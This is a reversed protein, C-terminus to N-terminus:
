FRNKALEYERLRHAHNNKAKCEEIYQNEADMNKIIEIIDDEYYRMVCERTMEHAMFAENDFIGRHCPM